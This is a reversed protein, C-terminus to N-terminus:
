RFTHIIEAKEIGFQYWSKKQYSFNKDFSKDETM